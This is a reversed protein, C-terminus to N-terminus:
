NVNVTLDFTVAPAVSDDATFRYVWTGGAESADTLWRWDVGYPASGLGGFPSPDATPAPGGTRAYSWSVSDPDPDAFVVRCDLPQGASVDVDGDTDGGCDVSIAPAGNIGDDAVVQAAFTHRGEASGDDAVWIVVLTTGALGNTSGGFFGGSVPVPNSGFPQIQFNSSAVSCDVTGGAADECTLSVNAGPAGTVGFSCMVPQGEVAVEGSGVDPLCVIDAFAPAAASGGMGSAGAAAATGGM